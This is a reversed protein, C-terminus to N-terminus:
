SPDGTGRLRSRAGSAGAKTVLRDSQSRQNPQGGCGGASCRRRRGVLLLALNARAGFYLEIAEMLGSAKAAALSVGKGQSVSLSRVNPRHVVVVPLGITDLRTVDAVRTIGLAHAFRGAHAVTQEPAIARHTGTVYGKRTGTM